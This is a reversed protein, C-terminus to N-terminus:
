RWTAIATPAYTTPNNLVIQSRLKQLPALTKTTLHRVAVRRSDRITPVPMPATTPMTDVLQGIALSVSEVTPFQRLIM